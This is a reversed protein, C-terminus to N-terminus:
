RSALLSVLEAIPVVPNTEATGLANLPSLARVVAELNEAELTLNFVHDLPAATAAVVKVETSLNLSDWWAVLQAKRDPFIAPCTEHSHTHKIQFLM